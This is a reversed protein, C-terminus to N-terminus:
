SRDPPPTPVNLHYVVVADEAHQDTFIRLSHLFPGTVGWEHLAAEKLKFEKISEKGDKSEKSEKAEDEIDEMLCIIEECSHRDEVFFLACSFVTNSLFLLVLVAATLRQIFPKKHM